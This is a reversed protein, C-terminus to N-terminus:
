EIHVNCCSAVARREPSWGSEIGGNSAHETNSITRAVSEALYSTISAAKSFILTLPKTNTM